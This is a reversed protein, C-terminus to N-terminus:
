VSGAIIGYAAGTKRPRRKETGGHHIGTGLPTLGGGALRNRRRLRVVEKGLAEVVARGTANNLSRMRRPDNDAADSLRFVYREDIEVGYKGAKWLKSNRSPLRPTVHGSSSPAAAFRPHLTLFRLIRAVPEKGEVSFGDLMSVAQFSLEPDFISKAVPLGRAAENVHPSQQQVYGLHAIGAWTNAFWQGCNTLSRM